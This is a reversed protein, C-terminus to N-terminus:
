QIESFDQGMKYLLNCYSIPWSKKSMYYCNASGPLFQGSGCRSEHLFFVRIQIRGMLIVPDPDSRLYNCGKKKNIKVKNYSKYPIKYRCCVVRLVYKLKIRINLIRFPIIHLSGSAILFIIM